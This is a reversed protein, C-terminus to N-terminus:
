GRILASLYVFLGYLTTVIMSIALVLCVIRIVKKKATQKQTTKNNESSM